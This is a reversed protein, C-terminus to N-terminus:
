IGNIILYMVKCQIEILYQDFQENTLKSVHKHKNNNNHKFHLFGHSQKDKDKEIHDRYLIGPNSPSTSVYYLIDTLNDPQWSIDGADKKKKDQQM